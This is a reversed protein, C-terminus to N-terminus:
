NTEMLARNGQDRKQENGEMKNSGIFIRDFSDEGRSRLFIPYCCRAKEKWYDIERIGGRRGVEFVSPIRARARKLERM